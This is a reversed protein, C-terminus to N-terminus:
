PTPFVARLGLMQLNQLYSLIDNESYKLNGESDTEKSLTAFLLAYEFELSTDFVGLDDTNICVHMQACNKNSVSRSELGRNNFRFVPHASYEKFTGILVNSTPNCEIILGKRELYNQMVDQVQHVLTVYEPTIDLSVTKAGEIKEDYGYQYYYYMGAVESDNRYTNSVESNVRYLEYQIGCFHDNRFSLSDYLEPADGRLQMSYFYEQLSVSWKHKQIAKGYIKRLLEIAQEKMIGYQQPNICVGLQRCRFLLWVLNDLYNQQPLIIGGSKTRYHVEPDVGLALAHGLRDGRQLGLFSVAEDIARIGDIIDYFDEGVHYSVSLRSRPPSRMAGVIPQRSYTGNKLFRFATAFVEPRCDVENACADIGRIRNCLYESDALAKSLEIVRNKLDKRFDYHRCKLAFKDKPKVKDDHRKPFHIVYFYQDNRFSAAELERNFQYEETNYISQYPIDAFKKAEDFLTVKNITGEATKSPCFRLELSAVSGMVLPANIAIRYADWQYITEDWFLDKRDQYNAFNQFGVQRNIQIFEGRFATKLVIYLHFLEQEFDTFDGRYCALFCGYLFSREGVLIRYPFNSVTQFVSEELAYDLCAACSGPLNIKAGYASRLAQVTETLYGMMSFSLRYGSDFEAVSSFPVESDCKSTSIFDKRHLARFLITRVLSAVQVREKASMVNDEPGRSFTSQLSETFDKPWKEFSRPDNMLACWSIPFSQSSGNLHYHNEAVGTKLIGNLACNDTRICAPWSFCTRHFAHQTDLYALYACILLDQGFFLYMERWRLTEEFRCYPENGQMTFVEMGFALLLLFDSEPVNLEKAKECRRQVMQAYILCQEDRSYGSFVTEAFRLLEEKYVNKASTIKLSENWNCLRSLIREPPIQRFILDLIKDDSKM